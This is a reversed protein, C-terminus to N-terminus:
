IMRDGVQINSGEFKTKKVDYVRAVTITDSAAVTNTQTAYDSTVQSLVITNNTQGSFTETYLNKALALWEANTAM